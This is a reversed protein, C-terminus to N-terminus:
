VGLKLLKRANKLLIKEQVEVPLPDIEFSRAWRNHDAQMEWSTYFDYREDFGSGNTDTGFLLKDQFDILFKRGFEPDRTVANLGSNASLDGYLNSFEELLRVAAGGPTISGEPYGGLDDADGSISAWWGNAHALFNVSPLARLVKRLRPLGPEDVAHQDDIHILVPFNVEACAEYLRLMRPDDLPMHLPEGKENRPKLEGFGIVGMQKFEKLLHVIDRRQGFADPHIVCFPFLRGKYRALKALLAENFTPSTARRWSYHHDPALVANLVVAQAVGKEDMRKVFPDFSFRDWDKLEERNIHTHIDVFRGVPYSNTFPKKTNCSALPFLYASLCAASFSSLSTTFTRRSIKQTPM